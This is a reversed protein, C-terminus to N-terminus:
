MKPLKPPSVYSLIIVVKLTIRRNFHYLIKGIGPSIVSFTNKTVLSLRLQLCTPDPTPLLSHM